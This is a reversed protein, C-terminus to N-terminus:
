VRATVEAVPYKTGGAGRGVCSHIRAIAAPSIISGPRKSRSQPLHGTVSADQPLSERGSRRSSKRRHASEGGHLVGAEVGNSIDRRAAHWVIHYTQNVAEEWSTNKNGKRLPLQCKRRDIKGDRGAGTHRWIQSCLSAASISSVSRPRRSPDAVSAALSADSLRDTVVMVGWAIGANSNNEHSRGQHSRPRRLRPM